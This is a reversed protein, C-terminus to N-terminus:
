GLFVKKGTQASKVCGEIIKIAAIGDDVTVPPPSNSKIADLFGTVVGEAPTFPIDNFDYETVASGGTVTRVKRGSIEIIGGSLYITTKDSGEGYRTWSVSVRVPIDGYDLLIDANDELAIPRNDKYKKHLTLFRAYVSTVDRSLLFRLLDFKHVGLDGVVGFVALNKNFFWTGADSNSWAEPGSHEFTAAAFLVEGMSGGDIIEKAKKVAEGLRQNHGAMLIKGAKKAVTKMEQAQDCSVGMPKECLVHKGAKLAAVTHAFHLSNVSCVSVAAIDAEALLEEVMTYAKGGYKQSAREALAPAFDYFGIIRVRNDGLYEPIHKNEAVTGCGIIGIGIKGSNRSM